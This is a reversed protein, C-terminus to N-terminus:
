GEFQKEEWSSFEFGSNPKATCETGSDLYVYQGIPSPTALGDCLIYGSNFPNIQFRIGAVVSNSIGDIVSISNSDRNAIYLTDTQSSAGIATPHDGVPIDEGIKTNNEGSIVSVTDSDRNAVYVKVTNKVRDYMDVIASPSKGVDIHSVENLGSTQQKVVEGLTSNHLSQALVINSQADLILTIIIVELIAFISLVQHIKHNNEINPM